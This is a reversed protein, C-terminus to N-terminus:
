IVVSRRAPSPPPAASMRVDEQEMAIRSGIATVEQASYMGPEMEGEVMEALTPFPAKTISAAVFTVPGVVETFIANAAESHELRWLHYREPRGVSYRWTEEFERIGSTDTAVMALAGLDRNRLLAAFDHLAGFRADDRAAVATEVLPRLLGLWRDGYNHIARVASAYAQRTATTLMQREREAQEQAVGPRPVKALLKAAETPTVEGRSLREAVASEEDPKVAVAVSHERLSLATRYFEGAGTPDEIGLAKLHLLYRAIVSQTPSWSDSHAMPLTRSEVGRQGAWQHVINDAASM